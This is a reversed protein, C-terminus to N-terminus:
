PIWQIAHELWNTLVGDITILPQAQGGDLPTVWIRWYGGRDSAFAVWKGDPSVSPLGDQAANTTLRTDEGTLLNLRYVEWNGDRTSMFVVSNGDPSWVPRLDNGNDTLRQPNSGDGNMLWLGPEGGQDNVGNYVIRDQVPSWAPDRGLGLDQPNGAPPVDIRYIRMRGEAESGAYVLSRDGGSWSPPADRADGPGTTVQLSRGNPALGAAVDFLAVGPAAAATSHFAVVNSSHQRAPQTGDAVLLVSDAGVDANARYIRYVDGEQTSYLIRGTLQALERRVAADRRAKACTAQTEALLQASSEVPMLTVAALLQEAAACPNEADLLEQAYSGLATALTWRAMSINLTGPALLAALAAQITKVRGAEPRLAVAANLHELAGEFDSQNVAGAALGVHSEFLMRDGTSGQYRPSIRRAITMYALANQWDGDQYAAEADAWYSRVDGAPTPLPAPTGADDGPLDGPLEGPPAAGAGSGPAPETATPAPGV